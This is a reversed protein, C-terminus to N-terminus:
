GGVPGNAKAEEALDAGITSLITEILENFTYKPGNELIQKRDRWYREITRVSCGFRKAAQQKATELPVEHQFHLKNVYRLMEVQSKAPVPPRRNPLVPLTKKASEDLQKYLWRVVLPGAGVFQILTSELEPSIELEDLGKRLMEPTAVKNLLETLFELNRKALDIGDQFSTGGMARAAADANALFQDRSEPRM